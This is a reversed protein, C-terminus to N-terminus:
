AWGQLVVACLLTSTSRNAQATSIRRARRRPAPAQAAGRTKSAVNGGAGGGTGTAGVRPSGLLEIPSSTWAATSATNFLRSTAAPEALRAASAKTLTASQLATLLAPISCAESCSAAWHAISAENGSQQKCGLADWVITKRDNICISYAGRLVCERLGRACIRNKLIVVTETNKGARAFVATNM